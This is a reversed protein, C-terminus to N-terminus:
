QGANARTKYYFGSVDTAKTNNKSAHGAYARAVAYGHHREVWTLATHRLWHPQNTPNRGLPLTQRYM